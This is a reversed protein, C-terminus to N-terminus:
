SPCPQTESYVVKGYDMVEHVKYRGKDGKIKAAGKIAVDEPIGKALRFLYGLFQDRKGQDANCELHFLFPSGWDEDWWPFYQSVDNIRTDVIKIMAGAVRKKIRPPM